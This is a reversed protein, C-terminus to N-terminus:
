RRQLYWLNTDMDAMWSGEWTPYVFLWKQLANSWVYPYDVYVWYGSLNLVGPHPEVKFDRTFSRTQNPPLSSTTMQGTNKSQYQIWIQFTAPSGGKVLGEDPNIKECTYLRVNEEGTPLHVQKVYKTLFTYRLYDKGKNLGMFNVGDLSDPAFDAQAMSLPAALLSLALLKWAYLKM